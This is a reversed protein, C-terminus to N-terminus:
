TRGDTSEEDRRSLESIYQFRWLSGRRTRHGEANLQDAVQRCSLGSARLERLRALVRQEGADPELRRGDPALKCGYRIEGTRFGNAKKFALASRTRESVVAREWEAISGLIHVVLRGAASSHDLSEAVSVLAVRKREFREILMGLNAVSRTLRDLRAVYIVDVQRADVLALLRTMGPRNLTKASEGADVIIEMLEADQVAAMAAVKAQQQELSVGENSQQETSVRVYAIARLGRGGDPGREHRREYVQRRRTM